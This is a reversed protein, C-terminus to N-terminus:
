ILSKNVDSALEEDRQWCHGAYFKKNTIHKKWSINRATQQMGVQIHVM